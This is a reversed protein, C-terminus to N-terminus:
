IFIPVPNLDCERTKQARWGLTVPVDFLRGVAFRPWFHRLGPVIVKVVPLGVDPRTQDLVIVELGRGEIRSQCYALDGAVDGSTPVPWRTARSRQLQPNPLLYQQNAVTAARCWTLFAADHLYTPPSGDAAPLVAPLYQNMETLARVVAARFDLHAAFAVLIDEQDADNIRSFAGVVPIGLDATLDLAWVERGLGAYAERLRDIYPDGFGDLDVGPRQVRNYWWLAASDREVLEYLASLTAAELTVGSACGNSDAQAVVKGGVLPYGYYLYQTPLWRTRQETVSWAPSWDIAEDDAFPEFVRNFQAAGLNWLERHRYQRDSFLMCANPHIATDGLEERTRRVRTEDGQFVASVREIAEGIASARADIEREGKGCSFVSLSWQVARLDPPHRAMNQGASFVYLSEAPLPVREVFTVVGTLPSIQHSFDDVVTEARNARAADETVCAESYDSFTVPKLGRTGIISPDGCVPCQPRRTFHHREAINTLLDVTLVSPEPSYAGTIAKLVELAVVGAGISSAVQHRVTSMGIAEVGGLRRQLYVILQGNARLRDALCSWCGTVYPLFFPGVWLVSGVPRALLWPTQTSLAARNICDLERRLYDDTLAVVLTAGEFRDTPNRSTTVSGVGSARLHEIVESCGVDGTSYVGVRASALLRGATPAEVGASEYFGADGALYDHKLEPELLATGTALLSDLVTRIQDASYHDSLESVIEDITRTGDARKVVSVALEGELLKVGRESALFAGEGEVVRLDLDHRLRVVSPRAACMIMM